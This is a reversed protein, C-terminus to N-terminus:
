AGGDPGRAHPAGGSLHRRGEGGAEPCGTRAGSSRRGEAGATMAERGALGARGKPGSWPGARPLRPRGRRALGRVRGSGRGAHGAQASSQAGHAALGRLPRRASATASAGSGGRPLGRVRAERGQQTEVRVKTEGKGGWEGKM